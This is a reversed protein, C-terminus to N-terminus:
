SHYGWQSVWSCMLKMFRLVGRCTLLRFLGHELSRRDYLLNPVDPFFSNQQISFVEWGLDIKTSM